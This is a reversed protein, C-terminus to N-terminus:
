LGEVVVLPRGPSAQQSGELAGEVWAGVAVSEVGLERAMHEALVELLRREDFPTHLETAESGVTSLMDIYYQAFPLLKNAMKAFPKIADSKLLRGKFTKGLDDGSEFAARIQPQPL